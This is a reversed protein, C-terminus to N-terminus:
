LCEAVKEISGKNSDYLKTTGTGNNIICMTFYGNIKGPKVTITSDKYDPNRTEEMAAKINYKKVYDSISIKDQQPYDTSPNAVIYYETGQALTNIQEDGMDSLKAASTLLIAAGLCLAFAVILAVITETAASGSERTDNKRM